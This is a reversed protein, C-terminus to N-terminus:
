SEAAAVFILAILVAIGIYGAISAFSVTIRKM